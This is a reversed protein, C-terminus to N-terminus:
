SAPPEMYPGHPPIFSILPCLQRSSHPQSIRILAIIHSISVTSAKEPQTATCPCPCKEVPGQVAVCGSFALLTLILWTIKRM